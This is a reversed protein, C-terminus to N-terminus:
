RASKKSTAHCHCARGGCAQGASVRDHGLDVSLRRGLVQTRAPRANRSRAGHFRPALAALDLGEHQANKVAQGIQNFRVTVADRVMSEKRFASEGGRTYERIKAVAELVDGLYDLADLAM